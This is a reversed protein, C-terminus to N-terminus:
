EEGTNKVNKENEVKTNKSLKSKKLIQNNSTLFKFIHPSMCSHCYIKIEDM